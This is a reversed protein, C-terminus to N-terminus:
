PPPDVCGAVPPPLLVGPRIVPLPPPPPPSPTTDPCPDFRSDHPVPEVPSSVGDAISVMESTMPDYNNLVVSRVTCYSSLLQPLHLPGSSLIHSMILSAIIDSPSVHWPPICPPKRLSRPSGPSSPVSPRRPMAPSMADWMAYKFRTQLTISEACVQTSTIGM